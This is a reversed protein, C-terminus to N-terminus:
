AVGEDGSRVLGAARDEADAARELEYDIGRFQAMALRGAELIEADSVPRHAKKLLEGLIVWPNTYCHMDDLTFGSVKFFDNNARVHDEIVFDPVHSLASAFTTSM